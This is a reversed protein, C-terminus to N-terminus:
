VAITLLSCFRLEQWASVRATRLGQFAVECKWAEARATGQRQFVEIKAFEM